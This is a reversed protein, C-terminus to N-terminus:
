GVWPKGEWVPGVLRLRAGAGPLDLQPVEDQLQQPLLLVVVDDGPLAVVSLKDDLVGVLHGSEPPGPFAFGLHVVVLQASCQPVGGTWLSATM